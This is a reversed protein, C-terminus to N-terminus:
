TFKLSFTSLLTPTSLLGIIRLPLDVTAAKTDADAYIGSLLLTTDFAALGDVQINLGVDALAFENGANATKSKCNVVFLTHPDMAILIKKGAASAADSVTELAVGISQVMSAGSTVRSVTGTNLMEVIDGRYITAGTTVVFEMSRINGSLEELPRLGFTFAANAM